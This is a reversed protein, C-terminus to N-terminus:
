KLLDTITHRRVKFLASPARTIQPQPIQVHIDSGWEDDNWDNHGGEKDADQPRGAPIRVAVLRSLAASSVHSIVADLENPDRLIQTCRLFATACM